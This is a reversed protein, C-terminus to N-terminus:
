DRTYPLNINVIYIFLYIYFTPRSLETLITVRQPSSPGPISDRHPAINRACGELGAMTGTWSGACYTGPREQPYLPRPTAIVLWRWKASTVSAAICVTGESVQAKHTDALAPRYDTCM